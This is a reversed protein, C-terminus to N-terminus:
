KRRESKPRWESLAQAITIADKTAEDGFCSCVGQKVQASFEDPCSLPVVLYAGNMESRKVAKWNKGKYVACM